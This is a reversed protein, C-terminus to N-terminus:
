KFGPLTVEFTSIRSSSIVSSLFYDYLEPATKQLYNTLPHTIRLIEEQTKIPDSLAEKEQFRGIDLHIAQDNLWGYNDNDMNDLDSINYRCRRQIL